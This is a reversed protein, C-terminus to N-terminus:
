APPWRCVEPRGHGVRGVNFGVLLPDPLATMPARPAPAAEDEIAAPRWTAGAARTTRAIITSCGAANPVNSSVSSGEKRWCISRPGSSRGSCPLRRRRRQFISRMPAEPTRDSARRAWAEQRWVRSRRSTSKRRRLKTLSRWGPRLFPRACNARTACCSKRRKGTRPSRSGRGSPPARRSPALTALGIWSTSRISFISPRRGPKGVVRRTRLISRWFAESSRCAPHM